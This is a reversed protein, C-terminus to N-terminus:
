LPPSHYKCLEGPWDLVIEDLEGGELKKLFGDVCGELGRARLAQRVPALTPDYKESFWAKQHHDAFFHKNLKRFFESRYNQWAEELQKPDAYVRPFFDEIHDAFHQYTV